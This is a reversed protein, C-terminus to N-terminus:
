KEKFMSFIAKRLLTNGDRSGIYDSIIDSVTDDDELMSKVSERVNKKFKPDDLLIKFEEAVCKTILDSHLEIQKGIEKGIIEEKIM